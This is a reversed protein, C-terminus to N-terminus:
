TGLLMRKAPNVFGGVAQVAELLERITKGSAIIDPCAARKQLNYKFGLRDAETLM